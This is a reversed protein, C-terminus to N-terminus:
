AVVEDAAMVRFRVGDREARRLIQRYMKGPHAELTVRDLHVHAEEGLKFFDYGRDHLVPIWDLSMQYFVPRRDVEGAFTFLADLFAARDPRRRVVPDSFVVLYPG